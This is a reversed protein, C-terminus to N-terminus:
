RFQEYAIGISDDSNLWNYLERRFDEYFRYIANDVDEEIQGIKNNFSAQIENVKKQLSITWKYKKDDAWTLLIGVGISVGAGVLFIALAPVSTIVGATVLVGGIAVTLTTAVM